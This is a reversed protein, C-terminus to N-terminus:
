KKFIALITFPEEKHGSSPEGENWINEKTLNRAEQLLQKDYKDNFPNFKYVRSDPQRPGM